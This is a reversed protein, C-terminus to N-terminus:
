FTSLTYAFQSGFQFYSLRLSVFHIDGHALRAGLGADRMRPTPPGATGRLVVDRSRLVAEVGPRSARTLPRAPVQLTLWRSSTAFPTPAVAASLVPVLLRYQSHRAALAHRSGLPAPLVRIQM